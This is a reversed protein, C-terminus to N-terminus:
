GDHNEGVYLIGRNFTEEKSTKAPNPRWYKYYYENIAEWHNAKPLPEPFRSYYIRAMATAFNINGIMERASPENETFIIKQVKSTKIPSYKLVSDWVDYYTNPEMQYIGLAPGGAQQVVYYGLRSEVAATWLLLDVAQESYMNLKILTPEIIQDILQKKNIM